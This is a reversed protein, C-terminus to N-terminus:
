LGRDRWRLLRERPSRKLVRALKLTEDHAWSDALTPCLHAQGGEDWSLTSELRCANPLYVEIRYALPTEAIRTLVFRAGHKPHLDASTPSSLRGTTGLTFVSTVHVCCPGHYDHATGVRWETSTATRRQAQVPEEFPPLPREVIVIRPDSV